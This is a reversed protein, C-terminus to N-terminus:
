PHHHEGPRYDADFPLGEFLLVMLTYPQDLVVQAVGDGARVVAEYSGPGALDKADAPLRLPSAGTARALPPSPALGLADDAGSRPRLWVSLAENTARSPSWTLELILGTGNQAVEVPYRYSGGANLTRLPTAASALVVGHHMEMRPEPGMSDEDGADASPPAPPAGGCGALLVLLLVLSGRSALM